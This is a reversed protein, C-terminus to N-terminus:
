AHSTKLEYKPVASWMAERDAKMTELAKKGDVTVTFFKKRKGGRVATKEGFEAEVFGKEEMRDLASRMAGLSVKRNTRDEIEQKISVGYANDELIMIALLVIEEFEGISYKGM